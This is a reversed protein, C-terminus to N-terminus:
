TFHPSCVISAFSAHPPRKNQLCSETLHVVWELIVRCKSTVFSDCHCTSSMRFSWLCGVVLLCPVRCQMCHVEYKMFELYILSSLSISVLSSTNIPARYLSFFFNAFCLIFRCYLRHTQNGLCIYNHLKIHCIILSYSWVWINDWGGHCWVFIACYDESTKM